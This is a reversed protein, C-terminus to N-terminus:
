RQRPTRLRPRLAPCRRCECLEERRRCRMRARVGLAPDGGGGLVRVQSGDAPLLADGGGGALGDGALGDRRWESSRVAFAVGTACGGGCGGRPPRCRLPGPGLLARRHAPRARRPGARRAGPASALHDRDRPGAMRASNPRIASSRLSRRRDPGPATGDCGWGSAISVLVTAASPRVHRRMPNARPRGEREAEEATIPKAIDELQRQEARVGLFIEVIGGIAMVAAGIIYATVVGSTDTSGLREFVQPGTIGGIATGVAYFFAIALARIEMPFVESVTLYAASAGASAFFFTAALALTVGWDSFQGECTKQECGSFLVAVGVLMVASILYTGAIMPKRGVTDFLRGLVLPGLFNGAAFVAYFLGVKNAGVGFYTTLTLGLTITVANYIFAQGVFLSLGLVARKPYTKFVTRAIDRWPIHRRQRVTIEDEAEPLEQGTEERIEAEIEDVIREAEDERGHIFLWRPSEPLNRRILLIGLGWPPAWRM